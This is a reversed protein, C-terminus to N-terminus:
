YMLLSVPIKSGPFTCSAGDCPRSLSSARQARASFGIRSLADQRERTLDGGLLADCQPRRMVGELGVGIAVYREPVELHGAGDRDAVAPHHSWPAEEVAEAGEGEAGLPRHVHRGMRVDPQLRDGPEQLSLDQM